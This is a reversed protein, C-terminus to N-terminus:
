WNYAGPTSVQWATTPRAPDYFPNGAPFSEPTENIVFKYDTGDSKYMYGAEASPYTSDPDKPLAPLFDPVLGPIYGTADYGKSGYNSADGLWQGSTDPYSGNARKYAELASQVAKLDAARRADRASSASDELVPVLIGALMALITVVILMEIITFGGQRRM